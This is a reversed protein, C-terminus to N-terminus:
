GDKEASPTRTEFAEVLDGVTRIALAFEVTEPVQIGLDEELACILEMLALSDAGVDDYLSAEPILVEEDVAFAKALAARVRVAIDPAESV